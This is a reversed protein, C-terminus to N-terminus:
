ISTTLEFMREVDCDMVWGDPIRLLSQVIKETSDNHARFRVLFHANPGNFESTCVIIKGAPISRMPNRAADKLFVGDPTQVGNEFTEAPLVRAPSTVRYLCPFSLTKKPKEWTSKLLDGNFYYVRGSIPDVHETWGSPLEDSTAPREVTESSSPASQENGQRQTQDPATNNTLAEGDEGQGATDATPPAEDAAATAAAAAAEEREKEKKMRAENAAIDARCTPCTQQQVLWERLCHTHFAHGCGPLKKCGGLLDMQDRCIICTHGLRDLEEQDTVSEFRKEMNNTLRRYNNFAILRRRLQQFSVYVERFINIPMGYYTFVIAFFVVYFLFKAAQAVLEIVFSFTARQDRWPNALHKLLVAAVSKPRQQEQQQQPQQTQAADNAEEEVANTSAGGENENANPEAMGGVPCHHHEGEVLHHLFGMLGDIVHLIYSMISSSASILMIAFEFGFLIQVSPGDTAVSLASHAVALLDITLLTWLFVLYRVHTMRLRPLRQYWSKKTRAVQADNSAAENNNGGLDEDEDDPYM